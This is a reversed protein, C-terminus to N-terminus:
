LIRLTIKSDRCCLLLSLLPVSGLHQSFPGPRPASAGPAGRQMGPPAVDWCERLWRPPQLCTRGWSRSLLLCLIKGTHQRCERTGAQLWGQSRPRSKRWEACPAAGLEESVRLLEKGTLRAHSATVPMISTSTGCGECQMWFTCGCRKAGAGIHAGVGQASFAAPVCPGFCKGVERRHVNM